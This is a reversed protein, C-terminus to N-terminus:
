PLQALGILHGEPDTFQGVVLGNEEVKEPGFVRKGGLQEAKELAAAVDDVSVYFTVYGDRSPGGGVGGPIGIGGPTSNETFGYQGADSVSRAVPGGTDFEWGFLDGFYKRLQEPDKGTVEFHVVAQGM